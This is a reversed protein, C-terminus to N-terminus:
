ESEIEKLTKLIQQIKKINERAKMGLATNPGLEVVEQFAKRAEGYNENSYHQLGMNYHRQQAEADVPKSQPRASPKPQPADVVPTTACGAVVLFASSYM